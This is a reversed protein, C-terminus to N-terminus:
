MMFPRFTNAAEGRQLGGNRGLKRSKTKSKTGSKVVKVRQKIKAFKPNVQKMPTIGISPKKRAPVKYGVKTGIGVKYPKASNKINSRDM